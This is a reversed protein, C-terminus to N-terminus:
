TPQLLVGLGLSAGDILAWGGQLGPQPATRLWGSREADAVVCTGVPAMGLVEAETSPAARIFVFPSRVVRYTVAAPLKRVGSQALATDSVRAGRKLDAQELGVATGGGAAAELEGGGELAPLPEAKALPALMAALGGERERAFGVLADRCALSEARLTAYDDTEDLLRLLAVEFPAVEDTTAEERAATAAAAARQQASPLPPPTAGLERELQANTVGHRLEGRAFDYSLSTPVVLRPNRNAEPLGCVDSSVCPIGRLLSEMVVLPCCEQWLSPALLVRTQKFIVDVDDHPALVTMNPLSRLVDVSPAGSWQTTVAAFAVDPLRRALALLVALGKEPCPSVAMVFRHPAEWPRMAEPLQLGGRGDSRHFYHYDAAFLPQAMLGPPGYRRLYAAHHECPSLLADLRRLLEVHELEAVFRRFPGFPPLYYNHAMAWHRAADLSAAFHVLSAEISLSIVAHYRRGGLLRRLDAERGIWVREEEWAFSGIRGPGLKFALGEPLPKPTLALIDLVGGRACCRRLERLLSLSARTAGGYSGGAFYGSHAVVAVRLPPRASGADERELAVAAACRHGVKTLGLARLADDLARRDQQALAALEAREEHSLQLLVAQPSSGCAFAM